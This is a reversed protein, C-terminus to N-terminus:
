AGETERISALAAEQAERLTKYLKKGSDSAGSGGRGPVSSAARRSIAIHQKQSKPRPAESDDVKGGHFKYAEEYLRDWTLNPIREKANAIFQKSLETQGGVLSGINSALRLGTESDNLDPFKAKGAANTSSEFSQWTSSFTEELRARDEQALRNKVSSLEQQIAAIKPDITNEADILFEKPVEVGKAELYAAAAARPDKAEEFERWMKLAKQLAVPSSEKVGMAKLYPTVDDNLKKLHELEARAARIENVTQARSNHLRLAAEQQKRSGERFAEKEDRNWEAPPELPSLSVPSAERSGGTGNSQTAEKSAEGGERGNENDVKRPSPASKDNRDNNVDKNAEHAVELADRLSLGKAEEIPADPTEIAPTEVVNSEETSKEEPTM